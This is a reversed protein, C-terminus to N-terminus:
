ARGVIKNVAVEIVVRDDREKPPRYREAYRRVGEAVAATQSTVTATGSLTVWRGGDVSCIAAQAENLKAVHRAKWSDAWTIVRAIRTEPDYTFGVPTVHPAGDGKVITLSALHYEALFASVDDGPNTPDIIAM